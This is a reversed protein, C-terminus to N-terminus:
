EVPCPQEPDSSVPQPGQHGRSPPNAKHARREYKDGGRVITTLTYVSNIYSFAWIYGLWVMRVDHKDRHKLAIGEDLAQRATRKVFNVIGEGRTQRNKWLHIARLSFRDIAHLTVELDDTDFAAGKEVLVAHVAELLVPDEEKSITSWVWRLYSSPLEELMKGKHAGFPM